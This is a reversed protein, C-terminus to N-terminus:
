KWNESIKGWWVNITNSYIKFRTLLWFYWGQTASMTYSCCKKSKTQKSTEICLMQISNVCIFAQPLTPFYYFNILNIVGVKMDSVIFVPIALSLFVYFYLGESIDSKELRFSPPSFGPSIPLSSPSSSDWTSKTGCAGSSGSYVANWINWIKYKQIIQCLFERIFSFNVNNIWWLVFRSREQESM